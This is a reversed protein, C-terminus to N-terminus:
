RHPMQSLNKPLLEHQSQRVARDRLADPDAQARHRGRQRPRAGHPQVPLLDLLEAVVRELLAQVAPTPATSGIPRGQGIRRLQMQLQALRAHRQLQEV